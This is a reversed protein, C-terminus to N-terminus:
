FKFCYECKCHLASILIIVSSSIVTLNKWLSTCIKTIITVTSGVSLVCLVQFIILASVDCRFGM